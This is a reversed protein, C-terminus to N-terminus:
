YFDRNVTVIKLVNENLWVLLALSAQAIGHRSFTPYFGVNEILWIPLALSTQAIGHRSFTSHFEVM